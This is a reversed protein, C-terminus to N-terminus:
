NKISDFLNSFNFNIILTKNKANTSIIPESQNEYFQLCLKLFKWLNTVLMVTCFYLCQLKNLISVGPITVYM